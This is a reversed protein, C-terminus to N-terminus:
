RVTKAEISASSYMGSGIGFSDISIIPRSISSNSVVISPVLCDVMTGLFPNPTIDMGVSNLIDPTEKFARDDTRIM